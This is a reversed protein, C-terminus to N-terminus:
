MNMAHFESYAIRAYNIEGNYINEWTIKGEKLAGTVVYFTALGYEDALKLLYKLHRDSLNRSTKAVLDQLETTIQELTKEDFNRVKTEMEIHPVSLSRSVRKIRLEIGNEPPPDNPTRERNFVKGVANSIGALLQKIRAAANRPKEVTTVVESEPDPKIEPPNNM